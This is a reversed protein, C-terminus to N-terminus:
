SCLMAHVFRCTLDPVRLSKYTQELHRQKGHLFWLRPSPGMTVLLQSELCATTCACFSRDDRPGM